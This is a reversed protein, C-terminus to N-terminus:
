KVGLDIKLKTQISRIRKVRAADLRSFELSSKLDTAIVGTQAYEVPDQISDLIDLIAGSVLFTKWAKPILVELYAGKTEPKRNRLGGWANLFTVVWNAQMMKRYSDSQRLVYDVLQDNRLQTVQSTMKSTLFNTRPGFAVAQCFCPASVYKSTYHQGTVLDQYYLIEITRCNVEETLDERFGGVHHMAEHVMTMSAFALKSQDGVSPYTGPVASPELEKNVYVYAGVRDHSAGVLANESGPVSLDWKMAQFSIQDKSYLHWLKDIAFRVLVLFSSQVAANGAVVQAGTGTRSYKFINIADYIRADGM